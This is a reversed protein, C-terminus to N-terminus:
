LVGPPKRAAETEGQRITAGVMMLIAGLLAVFWGIQLAITSRPDGPRNVIGSYFILGLAIISVVATMQGRPWSLKHDRVIIYALILPAAAAALLLFRIIQHVDWASFDGHGGNIKSNPNSTDTGYWPLFVSVALLVSGVVAIIEGRRLNGFHM